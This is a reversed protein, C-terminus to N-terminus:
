RKGIGPPGTAATGDDNRLRATQGFPAACRDFTACPALARPFLGNGVVLDDYGGGWAGASYRRFVGGAPGRATVGTRHEGAKSRRPQDGSAACPAHRRREIAVGSIDAFALTRCIYHWPAATPLTFLAISAKPTMWSLAPSALVCVLAVLYVSHRWAANWRSGLRALLRATLIIVTVQVLVNAIFCAWADGPCIRLLISM